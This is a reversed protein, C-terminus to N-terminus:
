TTNLRVPHRPKARHAQVAPSSGWQLFYKDNGTFTLFELWLGLSHQAFSQLSLSFCEWTASYVFLYLPLLFLTFANFHNIWFRAALWPINHTGICITQGENKDESLWTSSKGFGCGRGYWKAQKGTYSCMWSHCSSQIKRRWEQASGFVLSAFPNLSTFVVAVFLTLNSRLVPKDSIRLVCHNIGASSTLVCLKLDQFQTYHQIM